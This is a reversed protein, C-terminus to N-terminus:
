RLGAQRLLGHLQVAWDRLALRTAARQTIENDLTLQADRPDRHRDYLTALVRGSDATRVELELTMEGSEYVYTYLPNIESRPPANLYVDVIKIHLELVKSDAADGAPKTGLKTLTEAFTRQALEALDGRIKEIDKPALGFTGFQRPDWSSSFRVEVPAIILTAGEAWPSRPDFSARDVKALSLPVLGASEMSSQAADAAIAAGAHLLAACLLVIRTAASRRCPGANLSQPDTQPPKSTSM